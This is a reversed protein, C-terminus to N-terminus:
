ISSWHLMVVENWDIM